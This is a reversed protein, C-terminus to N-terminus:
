EASKDAAHPTMRLRVPTSEVTLMTHSEEFKLVAVAAGWVTYGTKAFL